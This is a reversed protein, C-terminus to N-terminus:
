GALGCGESHEYGGCTALVCSSFGEMAGDESASIENLAASTEPVAHPFPVSAMDGREWPKRQIMKDFKICLNDNGMTFGNQRQWGTDSSYRSM